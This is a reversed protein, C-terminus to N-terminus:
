MLLTRSLGGGYTTSASFSLAAASSGAALRAFFHARTHQAVPRDPSAAGRNIDPASLGQSALTTLAASLLVLPHPM